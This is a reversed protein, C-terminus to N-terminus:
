WFGEGGIDGAAKSEDRYDLEVQHSYIEKKEKIFHIVVSEQITFTDRSNSLLQNNKRSDNMNKTQDIHITIKPDSM